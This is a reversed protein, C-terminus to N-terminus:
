IFDYDMCVFLHDIAEDPGLPLILRRWSYVRGDMERRTRDAYLPARGAVVQRYDKAADEAMWRPEFESLLRGTAERGLRAASKGAFVKFRFDDPLVEILHLEGLWPGLEEFAFDQRAPFARGARKGDWLAHFDRLRSPLSSLELM